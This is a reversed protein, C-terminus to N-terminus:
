FKFLQEAASRTQQRQAIAKELRLIEERLLGIRTELEAISMTDIVMGVEHTKLARAKRRQLDEEDDM